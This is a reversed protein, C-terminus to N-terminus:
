IFGFLTIRWAVPALYKQCLKESIGSERMEKVTLHEEVEKHANKQLATHKLQAEIAAINEGSRVWDAFLKVRQKGEANWVSRVNPMESTRQNKMLRALRKWAQPQTVSNIADESTEENLNTAETSPQEPDIHELAPGDALCPTEQEFGDGVLSELNETESGSGLLDVEKALKSSGKQLAQAIPPM